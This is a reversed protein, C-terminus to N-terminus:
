DGGPNWGVVEAIRVRIMPHTARALPMSHYQPYKSRLAELAAAYEADDEVQGAEGQVLVFWLKSWDDDYRDVLVSAHPNRQINRLRRLVRGRPKPKDDIVSYVAEGVVVFCLPVVHPIASPSATALHGVRAAAFRALARGRADGELKM